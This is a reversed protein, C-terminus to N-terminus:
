DHWIDGNIFQTLAMVFADRTIDPRDIKGQTLLGIGGSKSRLDHQNFISDMVTGLTNDIIDKVYKEPVPFSAGTGWSEYGNKDKIVAVNVILWKGLQNTIGSEVAMFYDAEINNEKAFSMLNDVRNKAGLYIEENVPQERVNSESPYGQIEVNDFFMELASKAGKIKTPNKTGILAKM